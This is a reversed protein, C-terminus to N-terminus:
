LNRPLTTEEKEILWAVFDLEVVPPSKRLSYWYVEKALSLARDITLTHTKASAEQTVAQLAALLLNSHALQPSPPLSPAKPALQEEGLLESVSCGMYKAIPQLTDMTPRKVNGKLINRAVNTKLGAEREFAAVPLRNASIFDRMKQQLLSNVDYAENKAM